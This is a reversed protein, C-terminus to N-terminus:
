LPYFIFFFSILALLIYLGTPLKGSRALYFKTFVPTDKFVTQLRRSITVPPNLGAAQELGM